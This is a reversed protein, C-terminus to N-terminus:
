GSFTTLRNGITRLFPFAQVNLIRRVSLSRDFNQLLQTAFGFQVLMSIVGIDGETRDFPFLDSELSVLISISPLLPECLVTKFTHVTVIM